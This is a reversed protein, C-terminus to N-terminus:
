VAWLKAGEKCGWTRSGTASGARVGVVPGAGVRLHFHFRDHVEDLAMPVELGEQGEVAVGLQQHIGISVLAGPWIIISLQHSLLM